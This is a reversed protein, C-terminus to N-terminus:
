APPCTAEKVKERTFTATAECLATMAQMLKLSRDVEVDRQRRLEAVQAELDRVHPCTQLNCETM